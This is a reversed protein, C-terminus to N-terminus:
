NDRGPNLTKPRITTAKMKDTERIAQEASANALDRMNNTKGTSRWAM